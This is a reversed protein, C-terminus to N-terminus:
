PVNAGSLQFPKGGVSLAGGYEFTDAGTPGMDFRAGGNTRFIIPGYRYNHVQKGDYDAVTLLYSETGHNDNDEVWIPDILRSDRLTRFVTGGGSALRVWDIKHDERSLVILDTRTYDTQGPLHVKAHAISTPNRGVSVSGTKQIDEPVATTGNGYGGVAYIHLTGDMTAVYAQNIDRAVSTRVATPAEIFELTKVVVPKASPANDFTYPWENPAAGQARTLEFDARTGFYMSRFYEFLPKLDIVAAKRENKSIAVAFGAKAYSNRNPGTIFSQRNTENSLSLQAERYRGDTNDPSSLWGFDDQYSRYDASAAIETPENFPLDIIGLLKISRFWGNSRLGPNPEIWDGWWPTTNWSTLAIVALQGRIQATDWLTVLAFENNTTMAVATPVKNPPLWLETRGPSTNTGTAAILGSQFATLSNVQWGTGYSRGVATPQTPAIGGNATTVAARLLEPSPVGAQSYYSWPRQPRQGFTGNGMLLTQVTDVGVAATSDAVYLVQAQNGSYDNQATNPSGWQYTWRVGSGADYIQDPPQWLTPASNTQSSASGYRYEIGEARGFNAAIRRYEDAAMTPFMCNDTAFTQSTNPPPSTNSPVPCSREIFAQIAHHSNRRGVLTQDKTLSERRFGLQYRAILTADAVDFRGDCNVDFEARTGVASAITSPTASTNGVGGFL